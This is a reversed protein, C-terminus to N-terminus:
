PTEASRLWECARCPNEGTREWGGRRLVTEVERAVECPTKVVEDFGYVLRPRGALEAANDRRRDRFAVEAMSHAWRGDLRVTLSVGVESYDCDEYLTRGDVRVPLQRRASPLGHAQEVDVAYHYELTSQVGDALLKVASDLAKRYRRPSREEMRRRIDTLRIRGNTVTTILCVYAERPTPEAVALDLATDAKSTRPMQADVGIHRHARSRHVVVGPHLVTGILPSPHREAGLGRVFTAAQSIASKGYPVTIHVPATSDPRRMSWEEAATHHSLMSSGGGYLLAAELVAHRTLPGTTVSYVGHLVTQWRGVEVRQKVRSRPFGIAHLQTHSVLGHQADVVTQLEDIETHSPMRRAQLFM